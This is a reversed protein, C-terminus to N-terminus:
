SPPCKPGSFFYKAGGGGFDGIRASLREAGRGRRRSVGGGGRPNEIFFRYGGGERRGRVGGEGEGLRFFILFIRFTRWTLTIARKHSLCSGSSQCKAQASQDRRSSTCRGAEDPHRLNKAGSSANAEHARPCQKPRSDM